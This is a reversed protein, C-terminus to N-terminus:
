NSGEKPTTVKKSLLQSGKLTTDTQKYRKTRVVLKQHTADTQKYRKIREGGIKLPNRRDKQLTKNEGGNKIPQTQRSTQKFHKIRVVLEVLSLAVPAFRSRSFVM